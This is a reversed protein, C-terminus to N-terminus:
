AARGGDDVGAQDAGDLGREFARADVLDVAHAVADLAQQLVVDDIQALLGCREPLLQEVRRGGGEAGTAVFQLVVVQLVRYLDQATVVDVIHEVDAAVIGGVSGVLEGGAGTLEVVFQEDEADGFSDVVVKGESVVAGTVATGRAEQGLGGLIRREVCEGDGPVVGDFDDLGHAAVRAPEGGRGRQAFVVLVVGRM